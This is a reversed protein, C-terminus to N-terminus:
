RETEWRGYATAIALCLANRYTPDELRRAEEENSLFGCEV